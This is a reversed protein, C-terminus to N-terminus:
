ITAYKARLNHAKPVYFTTSQYMYILKDHHLILNIIVNLLSVHYISETREIDHKCAGCASNFLAVDAVGASAVVCGCCELYGACGCNGFDGRLLEAFDLNCDRFLSM